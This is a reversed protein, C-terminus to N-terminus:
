DSAHSFIIRVLFPIPGSALPPAHWVRRHLARYINHVIFKFVVYLLPITLLTFFPHSYMISLAQQMMNTFILSTFGKGECGKMMGCPQKRGYYVELIM